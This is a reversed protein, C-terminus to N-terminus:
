CSRRLGYGLERLVSTWRCMSDIPGVRRGALWNGVFCRYFRHRRWWRSAVARLENSRRNHDRPPHRDHRIARDCSGRVPPEREPCVTHAGGVGPDRVGEAPWGVVSAIYLAALLGDTVAATASGAAFSLAHPRGSTSTRADTRTSVVYRATLAPESEGAAETIARRQPRYRSSACPDLATEARLGVYLPVYRPGCSGVM